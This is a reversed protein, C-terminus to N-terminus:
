QTRKKTSASRRQRNGRKKKTLKNQRDTLFQAFGDSGDEDGAVKTSFDEDGYRLVLDPAILSIPLRKVDRLYEFRARIRDLPYSFYAPFKSLEFSPYTYIDRVIEWKPILEDEVSYGLIPPLRSIFRGVNKIGISKLFQIVPIMKEDIDLTLLAPFSRFISAM